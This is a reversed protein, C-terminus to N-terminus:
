ETVRARAPDAWAIERARRLLAEELQEERTRFMDRPPMGNAACLGDLVDEQSVLGGDALIHTVPAGRERLVPAVLITRHCNAPDREACLLALRSDVAEELVRAIGRLFLGTQALRSFLVRGEDDYCSPDPTRAGLEAGLFLYRIGHEALSRDLTRRNFQPHRRSYPVSRVDAVAATRHRELLALFAGIPHNSHGITFVEPAEGPGVRRVM